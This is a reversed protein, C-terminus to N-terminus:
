LFLCKVDIHKYLLTKSDLTFIIERFSLGEIVWGEIVLLNMWLGVTSIISVFKNLVAGVGGGTWRVVYM